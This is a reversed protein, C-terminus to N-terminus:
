KIPLCLELRRESIRARKYWCIRLLDPRKDDRVFGYDDIGAYVARTFDDLMSLPFDRCESVFVAYKGVIEIREFQAVIAAIEDEGIAYEEGNKLRMKMASVDIGASEPVVALRYGYGEADFDRLIEWWDVDNERRLLRLADQERRTSECFAEDRDRRNDIKGEIRGGFGVFVMGDFRKIEYDLRRKGPVCSWAPIYRYKGSVRCETPSFGHFKGFAKTFSEPSSYGCDYAMDTVSVTEGALRKGAESLRRVRVYEGLTFGTSAAFIRAVSDKGYHVARTIEDYDIEGFLENELYDVVTKLIM